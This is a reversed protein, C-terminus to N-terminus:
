KKNEMLEPIAWIIETNYVFNSWKESQKWHYNEQISVMIFAKMTSHLHNRKKLWNKIRYRM